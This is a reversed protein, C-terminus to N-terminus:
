GSLIPFKSIKGTIFIILSRCPNVNYFNVSIILAVKTAQPLYCECDKLGIQTHRFNCAPLENVFSDYIDFCVCVFQWFILCRSLICQWFIPCRQLVNFVCVCVCVFTLLNGFSSVDQCYTSGFSPVDKCYMLCVWVCVCVNVSQWFILCRSLICQWFIPCRQLVNFVCM